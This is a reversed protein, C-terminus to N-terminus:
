FKLITNVGCGSALDANLPDPCSCYIHVALVNNKSPEMPDNAMRTTCDVQAFFLFPMSMPNRRASGSGRMEEWSLLLLLVKALTNSISVM